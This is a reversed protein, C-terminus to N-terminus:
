LSDKLLPPSPTLVLHASHPWSRPCRLCVLVAEGLVLWCQGCLGRPGPLLLGPSPLIDQHAPSGNAPRCSKPMMPLGLVSMDLTQLASPLRNPPNLPHTPSVWPAMNLTNMKVSSQYEKLALFMYCIPNLTLGTNLDLWECSHSRPGPVEGRHVEM